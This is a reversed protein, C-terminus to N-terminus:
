GGRPNAWVFLAGALAMVLVVVWGVMARVVLYLVATEGCFVGMLTGSLSSRCSFAMRRWACCSAWRLEIRAEVAVAVGPLRRV